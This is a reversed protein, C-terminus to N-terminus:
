GRRESGVGRALKKGREVVEEWRKSGVEQVGDEGSRMMEVEKLYDVLGLVAKRRAELLHPM